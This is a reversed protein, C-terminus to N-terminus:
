KYRVLYMTENFVIPIYPDGNITFTQGDSFYLKMLSYPMDLSKYIGRLAGGPSWTNQELRRPVIPVACPVLAGTSSDVVPMKFTNSITSTNTDRIEYIPYDLGTATRYDDNYLQSWVKNASLSFSAVNSSLLYSQIGYSANSWYLIPTSSAVGSTNMTSMYSALQDSSGTPSHTTHNAQLMNWPPNNNMADEWSQTERLGAYLLTGYSWDTHIYTNPITPNITTGYGANYSNSKSTEWLICYDKTVALKFVHAKMSPGTAMSQSIAAGITSNVTGVHGITHCSQTAVTPFPVLHYNSDSGFATATSCGYTMNIPAFGLTNWTTAVIGGSATLFTTGTSLYPASFTLKNYPAASKGSSNYFDAIYAKMNATFGTFAGSNPVNHASSTTWGGAETNADISIICNTTSDVTGTNNVFPNVTLTSTGAAATCAATICRLMNMFAADVTASQNIMPDFTIIM